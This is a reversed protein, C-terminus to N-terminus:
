VVEAVAVSYTGWDGRTMQGDAIRVNSRAIRAGKVYDNVLPQVTITSATVDTILVDESNNGDYVTVETFAKFGDTTDVNLETTGAARPATLVAVATQRVLKNPEGDFADAFTGSNGPARGDLEMQVQIRMIKDAHNDLREHSKLIGQEQHNEFAAMHRTGEQLVKPKGTAPDIVPNGYEDIEIIHDIWVRPVFVYANDM